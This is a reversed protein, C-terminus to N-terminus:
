LVFGASDTNICKKETVSRPTFYALANRQPLKKRALRINKLITLLRDRSSFILSARIYLCGLKGQAVTLSSSFSNTLNLGLTLM